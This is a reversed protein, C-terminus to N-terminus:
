EYHQECVCTVAGGSIKSVCMVKEKYLTNCLNDCVKYYQAFIDRDSDSDGICEQDAMNGEGYGKKLGDRFSVRKEFLVFQTMLAGITLSVVFILIRRM